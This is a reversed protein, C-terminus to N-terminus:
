APREALHARYDSGAIKRAVTTPSFVTALVPVDPGVAEVLAKLHRLERGLAGEGVDRVRVTAWDRARQVPYRSVTAVGGDRIRSYDAEVGWPEGCYFANPMSKIFDFQLRQHIALTAKTLTDADLDDYPLHTWLSFPPRDA